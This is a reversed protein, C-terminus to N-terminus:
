FGRRTFAYVIYYLRGETLVTRSISTLIDFSTGRTWVNTICM